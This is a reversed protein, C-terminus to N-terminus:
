RGMLFPPLRFFPGPTVSPYCGPLLALATQTGQSRALNGGIAQAAELVATWLRTVGQDHEATLPSYLDAVAASRAQSLYFLACDTRPGSRRYWNASM